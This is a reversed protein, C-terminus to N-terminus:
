SRRALAKRRLAFVRREVDDLRLLKQAIDAPALSAAGQQAPPTARAPPSRLRDAQAAELLALRYRGIRRIAAQARAAVVAAAPEIGAERFRIVLHEVEAAVPGDISPLRALQSLGHNLANRSSRAKGEVTRPGTSRKANQRNSGRRTESVGNARWPKMQQKPSRERWDLPLTPVAGKLIAFSQM